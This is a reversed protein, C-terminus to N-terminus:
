GPCNTDGSPCTGKTGSCGDKDRPYPPLPLTCGCDNQGQTAFHVNTTATYNQCTIPATTTCAQYTFTLDDQASNNCRWFIHFSKTGGAPITLQTNVAAQGDVNGGAFVIAFDTAAGGCGGWTVSTITVKLEEQCNNRFTIPARYSKDWPQSGGPYKCGEVSVSPAICPRSAAYAPAASAVAIVPVSWAAGAALTRRSIGGPLRGATQGDNDTM